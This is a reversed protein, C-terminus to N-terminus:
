LYENYTVLLVFVADVESVPMYSVPRRSEEKPTHIKVQAWNVPSNGSDESASLLNSSPEAEVFLKYFWTSKDAPSVSVKRKLETIHEFLFSNLQSYITSWNLGPIDLVADDKHKPDDKKTQLFTLDPLQDRLNILNKLEIVYRERTENTNVDYTMMIIKRINGDIRRNHAGIILRFLDDLFDEIYQNLIPNRSIFVIREFSRRKEYLEVPYIENYYLIQNIWVVLAEKITLIVNQLTLPLTM